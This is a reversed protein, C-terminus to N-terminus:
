RLILNEKPCDRDHLLLQMDTMHSTVVVCRSRPSRPIDQSRKRLVHIHERLTHLAAANFARAGCPPYTIIYTM